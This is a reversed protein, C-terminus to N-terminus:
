KPSEADYHKELWEIINKQHCIIYKKFKFEEVNHKLCEFEEQMCELAFVKEFTNEKRVFNIAVEGIFSRFVVINRSSVRDSYATPTCHKQQLRLIWERLLSTERDGYLSEKGQHTVKINPSYDKKFSSRRPFSDKILQDVDLS